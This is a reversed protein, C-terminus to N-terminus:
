GRWQSGSRPRLLTAIYVEALKDRSFVEEALRLAGARMKVREPVNGALRVITEGLLAQHTGDCVTGCAYQQLWPQLWTTRNFLAPLGAAIGDFFKNPSNEEFLPEAMFTIVNLDAGCYLDIVDKKPLMGFYTVRESALAQLRVAEPGDGALWWVVDLRAVTAQIAAVLDDIANSVGMAGTYLVVTQNPGVAHRARIKRRKAECAHYDSLDCSNAITEVRPKRKWTAMKAEVRRTMGTSCTVIGAAHRYALHELRFSLWRLLRNKLVGAAIASDPWVDIVEFLYPLRLVWKGVLAPVALSLPGSSAIVLDYQRGRRLVFWLAYAMFSVFSGLRRLFGMHPRYATGSVFVRVGEVVLPVGRTPMLSPDYGACCVVDVAQGAQVFRRAFEYTRVAGWGAPTAFYQHLWLIKM